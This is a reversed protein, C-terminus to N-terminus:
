LLLLLLDSDTTLTVALAAASVNFIVNKLTENM